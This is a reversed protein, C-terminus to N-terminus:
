EEASWNDEVMAVCFRPENLGPAFQDKRGRVCVDLKGLFKGERNFAGGNDVRRFPIQRLYIKNLAPISIPTGYPLCDKDMACSVWPAKNELFDQLTHLKNGREDLNGGEMKAEKESAYGEKPEPFYGTLLATFSHLKM